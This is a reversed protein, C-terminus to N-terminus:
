TTNAVFVGSLVRSGVGVRVTRGFGFSQSVRNDVRGIEGASLVRPRFEEYQTGWGIAESTDSQQRCAVEGVSAPAYQIPVCAWIDALKDAM